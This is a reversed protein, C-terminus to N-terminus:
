SPVEVHLMDAVTLIRARLHPREALLAAFFSGDLQVSAQLAQVASDVIDKASSYRSDMRDAIQKGNPLFSVLQRLEEADFAALLFAKLAQLGAQRSPTGTHIIELVEKITPPRWTSNAAAEAAARRLQPVISGIRFREKWREYSNFRKTDM